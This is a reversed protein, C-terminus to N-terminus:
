DNNIEKTRFSYFIMLFAGITIFSDAINFAPWHHMGLHFDLFDVVGGYTFRDILNGLAGGTILGLAAQTKIDKERLMWIILAIIVIAIFGILLYKGYGQTDAFMSFSVGTNKVYVLNLISNVEIYRKDALLHFAIYYKSLQDFIFVLLCNIVGNKM